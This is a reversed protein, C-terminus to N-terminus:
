ARRCRAIASYVTALHAVANLVDGLNYDNTKLSMMRRVESAESADPEQSPAAM